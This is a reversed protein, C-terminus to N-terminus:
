STCKRNVTTHHLRYHSSPNISRPAAATVFPNQRHWQPGKPSKTHRQSPSKKPWSRVSVLGFYRYHASRNETKSKLGTRDVQLSESSFSSNKRLNGVIHIVANNIYVDSDFGFHIVHGILGFGMWILSLKACCKLLLPYTYNDPTNKRLMEMYLLLSEEPKHSECYGRITANWSFANPNHLNYLITKCYDLNRSESIACFAVLRSAAFQDSILGTVIM